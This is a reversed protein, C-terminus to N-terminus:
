VTEWGPGSNPTGTEWCFFKFGSPAIGLPPSQSQLQASNASNSEPCIARPGHSGGGHDEDGEDDPHNNDCQGVRM